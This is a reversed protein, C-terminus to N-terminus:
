EYAMQNYAEAAAENRPPDFKDQNISGINNLATPAHESDPYRDVLMQFSTIAEEFDEVQLFIVGSELLAADAFEYDPVDVATRRFEFAAKRKEEKNESQKAQKANQFISEAKRTKAIQATEGTIGAEEIRKATEEAKAYNGEQFYGDLIAKYAEEFNESNPYQTVIIEFYKRSEAYRQKDYFIKGSKFVVQSAMPHEPFFDYFIDTATLLMTEARSLEKTEVTDAVEPGGVEIGATVSTTDIMGESDPTELTDVETGQTSLNLTDSDATAQETETTDDPAEVQETELTDSESAATDLTDTVTGAQGTGTTDGSVEVQESELTDADAEGQMMDLTDADSAEVDLTDDIAAGETELTDAPDGTVNLTDNAAEEVDVATTDTELTDADVTATTDTELTDADVTATTDEPAQDGISAWAVSLADWNAPTFDVTALTELAERLMWGTETGSGSEEQEGGTGSEDVGTEGTEEPAVADAGSEESPPIEGGMGEEPAVDGAPTGTEQAAEEGPQDIQMVERSEGEKPVVFTPEPIEEGAKERDVLDLSIRVLQTAANEQWENDGWRTVVDKFAYFANVQYQTNEEYTQLLAGMTYQVRPTKESLPFEVLYNQTVKLAEDISEQSGTKQWENVAVNFNIYYNDAMLTDAAERLEPDDNAQDWESGRRFREFIQERAKYAEDLDMIKSNTYIDILKAQIWPNKEGTPYYDVTTEYVEAAAEQNGIEEQYVDGMAQLMEYGYRAKRLSDEELYTIASDLGAGQWEEKDLTFTVAMYRIAENVLSAIDMGGTEEAQNFTYQLTQDFYAIASDYSMEVGSSRFYCWGLMYLARDYWKSDPYNLVEEFYTVATMPEARESFYYDGVRYNAEAYYKSDPFNVILTSYTDKSQRKSAEDPYQSQIYAINYLADAVYESNPFEDMIRRYMNLSRSYDVEPEPPWQDQPLEATVEMYQNFADAYKADDDEYYLDALRYMVKAVIGGQRSSRTIVPDSRYTRLFNETRTILERRYENIDEVLQDRQKVYRERVDMLEPISFDKVLEMELEHLLKVFEGKMRVVYLNEESVPGSGVLNVQEQYRDSRRIINEGVRLLSDVVASPSPTSSLERWRNMLEPGFLDGKPPAEVVQLPEEEEAKRDKKKKALSQEPMVGALLGLVIAAIWIRRMRMMMDAARINM